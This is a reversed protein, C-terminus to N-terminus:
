VLISSPLKLKLIFEDGRKIQNIYVLYGDHYIRLEIEDEDLPLSYWTNRYVLNMNIPTRGKSKPNLIFYSIATETDSIMEIFFNKLYSIKIDITSDVLSESLDTELIKCSDIKGWIGGEGWSDRFDGWSDGIQSNKESHRKSIYKIKKSEKSSVLTNNRWRWKRWFETLSSGRNPPCESKYFDYKNWDQGWWVSKGFIKMRILYDDDEYESGLFKEDLMGINRVLEKTIGFFAFGFLSAFCYGNCLKDIIFDIDDPCAITKPNIFIMFESETDDIAENIMQSFTQYQHPNRQHRFYTELQFDLGEALRNFQNESVERDYSMFCVAITKPTDLKNGLKM